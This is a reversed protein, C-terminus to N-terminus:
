VGIRVNGVLRLEIENGIWVQSGPEFAHGTLWSIFRNCASRVSDAADREAIIKPLALANGFRIKRDPATARSLAGSRVALFSRNPTAFSRISSMLM